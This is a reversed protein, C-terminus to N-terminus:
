VMCRDFGVAVRVCLQTCSVKAAVPGTATVSGTVSRSWGVGAPGPQPLGIDRDVSVNVAGIVRSV